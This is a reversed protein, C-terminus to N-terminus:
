NEPKKGAKWKRLKEWRPDTGSEEKDEQWQFDEDPNKVPNIPVELLILQRICESLDLSEEAPNVHLDFMDDANDDLEQGSVGEDLHVMVSLSIHVETEFDELTRVCNLKQVGSLDGSILTKDTGSPLIQLEGKLPGKLALEDVQELGSGNLEEAKLTLPARSLIRLDVKLACWIYSEGQLGDIFEANPLFIIYEM